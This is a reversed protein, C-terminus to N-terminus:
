AKIVCYVHQAVEGKLEGIWYEDSPSPIELKLPKVMQNEYSTLLAPNM